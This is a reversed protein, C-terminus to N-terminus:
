EFFFKIAGYNASIYDVKLVPCFVKNKDKKLQFFFIGGNDVKILEKIEYFYVLRM